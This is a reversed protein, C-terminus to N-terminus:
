NKQSIPIKKIKKHICKWKDSFYLMSFVSM